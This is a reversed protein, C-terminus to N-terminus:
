YFGLTFVTITGQLLGGGILGDEKQNMLIIM